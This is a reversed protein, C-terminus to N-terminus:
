AGEGFVYDVDESGDAALVYAFNTVVGTERRGHRRGAEDGPAVTESRGTSRIEELGACPRQSGV